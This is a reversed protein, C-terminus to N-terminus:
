AKTEVSCHEQSICCNEKGIGEKNGIVTRSDLTERPTKDLSHNWFFLILKATLCIM